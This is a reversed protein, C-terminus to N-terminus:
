KVSHTTLGKSHACPPLAAPIALDSPKASAPAQRVEDIGLSKEVLTCDEIRAEDLIERTLVQTRALESGVSYIHASQM